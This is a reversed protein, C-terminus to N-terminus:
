QERRELQHISLKARYFGLYIGCFVFKQKQSRIIWETDRARSTASVIGYNQLKHFASTNATSKIRM